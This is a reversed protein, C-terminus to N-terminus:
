KRPFTVSKQRRIQKRNQTKNNVCIKIKQNDHWIQEIDAMFNTWNEMDKGSTTNQSM